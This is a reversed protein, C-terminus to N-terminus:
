NPQAPDEADWDVDVQCKKQEDRQKPHNVREVATHFGRKGTHAEDEREKKRDSEVFESV